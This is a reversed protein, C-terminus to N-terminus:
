GIANYKINTNILDVCISSLHDFHRGEALGGIFEEWTKDM